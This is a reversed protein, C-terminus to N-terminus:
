TEGSDFDVKLIGLNRLWLWPLNRLYIGSNREEIYFGRYGGGSVALFEVLM